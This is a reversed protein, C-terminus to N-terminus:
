NCPTPLPGTLMPPTNNFRMHVLTAIPNACVLGMLIIQKLQSYIRGSM